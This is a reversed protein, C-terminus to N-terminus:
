LLLTRLYLPEDDPETWYLSSLEYLSVELKLRAPGAVNLLLGICDIPYHQLCVSLCISLCISVCVSVFLWVFVYVSACESLSLSLSLFVNDCM